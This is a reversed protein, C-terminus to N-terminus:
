IRQRRSARMRGTPGHQAEVGAREIFELRNGFPDFGYCREYGELQADDQIEYGSEAIRARLEALGDVVIAPHAKRAPRFGEEVGLHIEVSGDESRFWCGGRARLQEPKPVETLGLTAAYFRRADDERGSPMAVQVHHLGTLRM